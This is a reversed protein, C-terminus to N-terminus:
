TTLDQFIATLVSNGLNNLLHVMFPMQMLSTPSDPPHHKSLRLSPGQIKDISAGRVALQPWGLEAWLWEPCSMVRTARAKPFSHLQEPDGLGIVTM